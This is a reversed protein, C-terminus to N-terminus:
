SCAGSELPGATVGTMCQMQRLPLPKEVQVMIDYWQSIVPFAPTTVTGVALSVPMDVVSYRYPHDKHAGACASPILFVVGLGGTILSILKGESIWKMSVESKHQDTRQRVATIMAFYE